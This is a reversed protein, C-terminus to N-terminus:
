YVSNSSSNGRSSAGSKGELPQETPSKSWGWESQWSRASVADNNITVVEEFQSQTIQAGAAKRLLLPWKEPGKEPILGQNETVRWRWPLGLSYWRFSIPCFSSHHTAAQAHSGNTLGSEGFHHPNVRGTRTFTPTHKM